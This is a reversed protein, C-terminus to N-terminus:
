LYEPYNQKLFELLETYEKKKSQSILSFICKKFKYYNEDFMGVNMFMDKRVFLNAGTIFM